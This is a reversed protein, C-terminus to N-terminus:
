KVNAVAKCKRIFFILYTNIVFQQVANIKIFLYIFKM